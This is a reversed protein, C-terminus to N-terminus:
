RRKILVILAALAGLGLAAMTAYTTGTQVVATDTTEEADSQDVVASPEPTPTATPTPGPVDSEIM